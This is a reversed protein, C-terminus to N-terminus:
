ILNLLNMRFSKTTNVCCFHHSTHNFKAFYQQSIQNEYGSPLLVKHQFQQSYLTLKKNEKLQKFEQVIM